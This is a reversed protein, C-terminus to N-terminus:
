YVLSATYVEKIENYTQKILDAIIHAQSKTRCIAFVTPGSGSMMSHIAGNDKMLRKICNIIPYKAVTVSELVNATNNFIDNINGSEIAKTIKLNNPRLVIDEDSYNKFVDATSVYVPPKALVIHLPPLPPLKSLKEGIGTALAIGGKVCFPVDAGFQKSISIIAEDDLPLSFLNRIGVLTAACDSSGGALGASIPIQKKLGIFIGTSIGFRNILYKAAKTVLNREDTYMWPLNCVLKYYDPKDIKRIVIEDALSVSQMITSIEHYGDDRKGTIDLSLNIKAYARCKIENVFDIV